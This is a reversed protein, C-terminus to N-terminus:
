ETTRFQCGKSLCELGLKKIHAPTLRRWNEYSANRRKPIARIGDPGAVLHNISLPRPASAEMSQRVYERGVAPWLFSCSKADQDLGSFRRLLTNKSSSNVWVRFHNNVCKLHMQGFSVFLSAGDLINAFIAVSIFVQQNKFLFTRRSNCAERACICCSNKLNRKNWM